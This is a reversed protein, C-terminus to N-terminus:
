WYANWCPAMLWISYLVPTTEYRIHLFWVGGTDPWRYLSFCFLEVFPVDMDNNSSYLHFILIIWLCFFCLSSFAPRNKKNKKIQWEVNDQSRPHIEQIYSIWVTFLLTPWVRSGPVTPSEPGMIRPYFPFFIETVAPHPIESRHQYAQGICLWSTDPSSCNRHLSPIQGSSSSDLRWSTLM